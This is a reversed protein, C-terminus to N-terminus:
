AAGPSELYWRRILNKRCPGDWLLHHSCTPCLQSDAGKRKRPWSSGPPGSIPTRPSHTPVRVTGLDCIRACLGLVLSCREFGLGRCWGQFGPLGEVTSPLIPLHPIPPFSDPRSARGAQGMRAGTPRLTSHGATRPHPAKQTLIWVTGPWSCHSIARVSSTPSAEEWLKEEPEGKELGGWGEQSAWGKRRRDRWARGSIPRGIGGWSCCSLGGSAGVGFLGWEQQTVLAVDAKGPLCLFIRSLSFSFLTLPISGLLSPVPSFSLSWPFLSLPQPHPLTFACFWWSGPNSSFTSFPLCLFSTFLSPRTTGSVLKSLFSVAPVWIHPCGLHCPKAMRGLPHTPRSGLRVREGCLKHSYSPPLEAAGPPVQTLRHTEGSPSDTRPWQSYLKETEPLLWILGDSTRWGQHGLIELSRRGECSSNTHM